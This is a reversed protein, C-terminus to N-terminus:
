TNDYNQDEIISVNGICDQCLHLLLGMRDRPNLKWNKIGIQMLWGEPILGDFFPFLYASTYPINTKPLTLSVPLTSSDNTYNEHYQFTYKGEDTEILSGAVRDAVYIKAKRSMKNTSTLHYYEKANLPNYNM